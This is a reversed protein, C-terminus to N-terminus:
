RNIYAFGGIISLAVPGALAALAFWGPMLMTFFTFAVLGVIVGLLPQGKHESYDDMVSFMFAVFGVVSSVVVDAVGTMVINPWLDYGGIVM